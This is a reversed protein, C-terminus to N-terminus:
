APVIVVAVNRGIGPGSESGCDFGAGQAREHWHTVRLFPADAPGAPRPTAAPCQAAHMRAFYDAYMFLDTLGHVCTQQAGRYCLIAIESPARDPVRQGNKTM